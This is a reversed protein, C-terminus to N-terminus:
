SVTSFTVEDRGINIWQVADLTTCAIFRVLDHCYALSPEDFTTLRLAIHEACLPVTQKAVSVQGLSVDIEALVKEPGGCLHIVAEGYLARTLGTGWDRLM